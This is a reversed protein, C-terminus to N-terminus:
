QCGTFNKAIVYTESSHKRSAKPSFARVMRFQQRVENLFDPYEEGMFVKCVMDGGSTLVQEAVKLANQALWVSRAQDMGYNGTLNPAIDSLVADAKDVIKLIRQVTTEETIDGQVFQVGKITQLPAIDVAIVEAGLEVAIQSWGGPAAGLDIVVDGKKIIRYKNNIQRLKYASRARYGERKAKRYYAEGKLERYWRTPM